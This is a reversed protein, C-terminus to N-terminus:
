DNQPEQELDVNGEKELSDQALLGKKRVTEINEGIIKVCKITAQLASIEKANTPNASILAEMAETSARTLAELIVNVAFSDRLEEDLKIADKIARWRGTDDRGILNDIDEQKILPENM